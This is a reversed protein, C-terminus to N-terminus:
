FLYICLYINALHIVAHILQPLAPLFVLELLARKLVILSLLPLFHTIEDNQGPLFAYSIKRMECIGNGLCSSQPLEWLSAM